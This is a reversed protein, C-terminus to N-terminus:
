AAWGGDDDEDDDEDDVVLGHCAAEAALALRADQSRARLLRELMQDHATRLEPFGAEGPEVYGGFVAFDAEGKADFGQLDVAPIADPTTV